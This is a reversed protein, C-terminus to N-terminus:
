AAPVRDLYQWLPGRMGYKRLVAFAKENFRIGLKPVIWRRQRAARRAIREYIADRFEDPAAKRNSDHIEDDSVWVFLVAAFPDLEEIFDLTQEVHELTEGDTGLIFSHCDKLGRARAIKALRRIKDTHFGKRLRDLIQDCGSDSGVEMGTAGARVMLDALEEDFAVPSIYSTWPMRNGRAELERCIEKAHRPPLNFVSDVIFVHDVGARTSIDMFEDAVRVPKRMRTRAGELLPYTCYTCHLPCGRKTQLAETGYDSYYRPSLVARDLPPLEDLDLMELRGGSFRLDGDISSYLREVNQLAPQPSELEELLQAFAREGEGAIGYDAGLDQMLAKPTVSFGGGGLVVPAPSNSRVTRVLARYADLNATVDTYDMNQLNRLGIAVLDPQHERLNRAVTELPDPEFCLDWFLKEHRQPTAAMVHLLGLPIVADPMNERNASIFAIRM